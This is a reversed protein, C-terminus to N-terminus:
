GAQAQACHGGNHGEGGRQQQEFNREGATQQAEAPTEFDTQAQRKEFFDRAEAVAVKLAAELGVHGLAAVANMQNAAKGFQAALQQAVAEFNDEGRRADDPDIRGAGAM